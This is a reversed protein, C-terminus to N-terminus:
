LGPSINSYPFEQNQEIRHEKLYSNRNTQKNTQKNTKQKPHAHAEVAWLIQSAMELLMVWLVPRHFHRIFSTTHQQNHVIPAHQDTPLILANCHLNSM